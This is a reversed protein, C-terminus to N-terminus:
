VLSNSIPSEKQYVTRFIREVAQALLGGSVNEPAHMLQLPIVSIDGQLCPQIYGVPSLAFGLRQYFGIRRQAIESDTAEVELIVPLTSQVLYAKMIGSGIGNGRAASNVAFHEVFYFDAFKWHALFGVVESQEAYVLIEYENKVLLAEAESFCRHEQLPFAQQMLRHVAPFEHAQM